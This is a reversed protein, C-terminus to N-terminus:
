YVDGNQRIKQDEYPAVKRRYFELKACEMASIVSALNAYSNGGHHKLYDLCLKTIAYNLEGETMPRHRAFMRREKSIYPM